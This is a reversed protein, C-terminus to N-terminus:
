KGPWAGQGLLVFVLIIIVFDLGLLLAVGGGDLKALPPVRSVASLVALIVLNQRM